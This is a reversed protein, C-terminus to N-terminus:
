IKKQFLQIKSVELVEPSDNTVFVPLGTDEDVKTIVKVTQSTFTEFLM